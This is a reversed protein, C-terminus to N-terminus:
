VKMTELLVAFFNQLNKIYYIITNHLYKLSLISHFNEENYFDLGPFREM